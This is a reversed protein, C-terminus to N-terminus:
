LWLLEEMAELFSRPAPMARSWAGPQVVKLTLQFRLACKFDVELLGDLQLCLWKVSLLSPFVSYGTGLAKM